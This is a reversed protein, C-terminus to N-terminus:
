TACHMSSHSLLHGAPSRPPTPRHAAGFNMEQMKERHKRRQVVVNATKVGSQSAYARHMFKDHLGSDRMFVQDVRPGASLGCNATSRVPFGCLGAM